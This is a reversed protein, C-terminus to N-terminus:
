RSFYILNKEAERSGRWGSFGEFLFFEVLIFSCLKPILNTWVLCVKLPHSDLLSSDSMESCSFHSPGAGEEERNVRM